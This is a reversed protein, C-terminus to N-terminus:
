PKDKKPPPSSQNITNGNGSNAVGGNISTASGNVQAPVQPATDPATMKALALWLAGGVIACFLMVAILSARPYPAGVARYLAKAIETPNMYRWRSHSRQSM